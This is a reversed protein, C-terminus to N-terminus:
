YDWTLVASAWSLGVGFGSVLVKMGKKLRGQEASQALAIPITSSTTNGKDELNLVFKEPPIGLEDRVKELLLFSGQHFVVLDIDDLALGAADLTRGVSAPVVSMSFDLVKRGDMFLNEKSHVNGFRNVEEVATEPSCPMATEGAEIIIDRCGSGDTGLDFSTVRDEESAELLTATFGDGFITRISKDMKNIYRTVLDGTLFLVRKAIGASIFGKCVALGYVFGSCGLDYDLAGCTKRLGLKEHVVCATAPLVYDRAETCLVLLDISDRSIEPHEAFFKEGTLAMYYSVPKDKDAVRRHKIGTKKYIKEPTWTGFDKILDENTEYRDPLYYSIARISTGLIM